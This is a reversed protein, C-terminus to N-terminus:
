SVNLTLNLVRDPDRVGTLPCFYRCGYHLGHKTLRHLRISSLGNGASCGVVVLLVDDEVGGMRRWGAVLDNLRRKGPQVFIQPQSFLRILWAKQIRSGTDLQM